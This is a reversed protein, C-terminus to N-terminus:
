AAASIGFLDAVVGLGAENTVKLCGEGILVRKEADGTKAVNKDEAIPRLWLWEILDRDLIFANRAVAPSAAMVRNMQLKLTGYPGRYTDIAAVLTADSNAKGDFRSVIAASDTIFASFVSKVYPSVVLAGASGGNGYSAGMVSDFMARTAARQTGNTAPAVLGTGANFGGNAGGSGRSVNSTLWAPLGASVRTAGGVSGVNSLISFEVDRKIEKLSKRMQSAVKIQDGADSVAEQTNSIIFSDWVIQTYNGPRTPAATADFSYEDGEARVNAGPARLTDIIWEPHTAKTRGKEIMSYIPTDEPTLLSVVDSLEERNTRGGTSVFTNAIAVM